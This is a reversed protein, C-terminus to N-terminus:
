TRNGTRHLNPCNTRHCSVACLPPGSQVGGPCVPARAEIESVSCDPDSAWATRTQLVFGSLFQRFCVSGSFCSYFTLNACNLPCFSLIVNFGAGCRKVLLQLSYQRSGFLKCKSKCIKCFRFKIATKVFFPTFVGVM